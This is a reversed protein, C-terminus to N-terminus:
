GSFLDALKVKLGRLVKSTVHGSEEASSHVVYLGGELTLVELSRNAPDVIWYEKVRFRAYKSLKDYRDRRISGPSVIEVVLDPAGNICQKQVIGSNAKAVFIIDPQATDTSSFVVDLPAIYIKGLKRTRVFARLLIALELAENQHDPTPSPPIMPILAGDDIEYRRDDDIRCYDEYTWRKKPPKPKDLTAAM